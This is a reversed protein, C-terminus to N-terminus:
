KTVGADTSRAEKPATTTSATTASRNKASATAAVLPDNPLLADISSDADQNQAAGRSAALLKAFRSSPDNMLSLRTGYELVRGNELVAIDDCVSLTELRHAIVVSTRNKLLQETAHMIRQQTLPDIRSTAEDLIVISPSRVMARALALLQAEGASLGAGGRRSLLSADLGHEQDDLWSELGVDSLARIVKADLEDGDTQGNAFMTVNDRVSGPFLQVDQPISTVRLRLDAETVTALNTDGLFVHGSTPEILRLALRGLSTKGSGSRGVLGLSRGAAVHLSIDELVASDGDDYTLSVNRFSLSLPEAPLPQSRQPYNIRMRILQLVRTASGTAGQVDQLRWVIQEAPSRIATVFRVGLFVTGITIAKRSYLLGGWGLMIIEGLVLAVKISGVVKMQAFVRHKTAVVVRECKEAFQAISHAGAGLTIIDDAGAIREEVHGSVGARADREEIAEPLAANRQTWLVTAIGLMCVLYPGALVPRIVVLTICAAIALVSVAIIRAVFQSLFVAMATVDDDARSVLDGRTHDRHFSLDAELVQEALQHRLEDTIMWALTTVRWVVIVGVFSSVLGLAAYFSALVVLQHTPDRRAAADVFQQLVIASGLPLATAFSLFLGYLAVLRAHPKLLAVFFKWPADRM